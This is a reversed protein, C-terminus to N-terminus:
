SLASWDASRKWGERSTCNPRSSIPFGCRLGATPGAKPDSAFATVMGSMDSLAASDPVRARSHVKARTPGRLSAGGLTLVAGALAIAARKTVKGHPARFTM